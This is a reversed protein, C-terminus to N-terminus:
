CINCFQNIFKPQIGNELKEFLALRVLHIYTDIDM